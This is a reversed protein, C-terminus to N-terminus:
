SQIPRLVHDRQYKNYIKLHLRNSSLCQCIELSHSQNKNINSIEFKFFPFLKVTAIYVLYNSSLFASFYLFVEDILWLENKDIISKISRISQKMKLIEIM